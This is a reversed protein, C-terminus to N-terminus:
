RCDHLNVTNEHIPEQYTCNIHNHPTLLQYTLNQLGLSTLLVIIPTNTNDPTLIIRTNTNDQTMIIRTNTNDRTLIITTNTNDWKPIIPTNTRHWYSQHIQTTGHWYSQHKQTTEHEIMKYNRVKMITNGGDQALDFHLFKNSNQTSRLELSILAIRFHVTNTKTVALDGWINTWFVTETYTAFTRYMFIASVQM